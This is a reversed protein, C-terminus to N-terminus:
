YNNHLYVFKQRLDVFILSFIMCLREINRHAFVFERHVLYPKSFSSSIPLFQLNQSLTTLNVVSKILDVFDTFSMANQSPPKM